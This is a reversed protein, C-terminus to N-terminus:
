QVDNREAEAKKREAEIEEETNRSIKLLDGVVGDITMAFQEFRAPQFHDYGVGISVIMSKASVLDAVAEDIMMLADGNDVRVPPSVIDAHSVMANSMGYERRFSHCETVSVSYACNYCMRADLLGSSCKRGCGVHKRGVPHWYDFDDHRHETVGDRERTPITGKLLRESMM